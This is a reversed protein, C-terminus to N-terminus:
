AWGRKRVDAMIARGDLKVSKDVRPCHYDDEPRIALFNYAGTGPAGESAYVYWKGGAWGGGKQPLFVLGQFSRGCLKAVKRAWVRFWPGYKQKHEMQRALIELSYSSHVWGGMGQQRFSDDIEATAMLLRAAFEGLTESKKPDEGRGNM